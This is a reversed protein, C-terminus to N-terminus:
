EREVSKFKCVDFCAGCKICIDPNIVHPKKKEGTIAGAPCAKLCAGCGKCVEAIISYKLLDRCVKAPCKKDKIHAEYEDKFYRLTSLIPNPATQGLGCLSTSKVSSSLKELLEIDGERGEGKTIRTLIELLRKTGIRCPVCKGCSEAQTFELFFKAINVMCDTEDLVVMGGSGVISGVKALSEFDVPTDLLSAPICGGSPGGTQVAKFQKDGIIGGGIDYIIEGLRIGMPVEILGTNKVKGTLAFVKTGKSKETGISAYWAAGNRIINPINALTEVNNIVTPKGWLGRHVPFPPKARPMGRQGEVSAILATEEGCVFAGAGLKIRLDFSFDSNFLDKGLYGAEHAQAMALKLREVAAPYEARIYVYGLNSGIAYAAIMMGEIVSHPNGEIISRDMFAGPDGEDANCVIYKADGPAKRCAEWKVGTPFGAGGRGRIGSDKINNIVEDPTMGSLIKKIGDYGGVNIYAEIDEPDIAGCDKLLIKHQKDHFAYYTDDILWETVPKGEILHEQVIRKANDPKIGQYTVSQDGDVVDVLVDRACFGRCGVKQYHCTFDLDLDVCFDTIAKKFSQIVEKGGAALGGTGICVRVTVKKKNEESQQV